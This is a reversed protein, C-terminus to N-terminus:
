YILYKDEDLFIQACHEHLVHPLGAGIYTTIVTPWRRRRSMSVQYLHARATCMSAIYLAPPLYTGLIFDLFLTSGGQRPGKLIRELESAGLGLGDCLGRLGQDLHPRPLVVTFITVAAWVASPGVFPVARCARASYGLFLWHWQCRSRARFPQAGGISLAPFCAVSPPPGLKGNPM